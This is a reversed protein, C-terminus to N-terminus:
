GFGGSVVLVLVAIVGLVRWITNDKKAMKKLNYLVKGNLFRQKKSCNNL